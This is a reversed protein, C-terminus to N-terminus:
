LKSPTLRGRDKSRSLSRGTIDSAKMLLDEIGDIKVETGSVDTPPLERM